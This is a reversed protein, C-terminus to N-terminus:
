GHKRIGAMIRMGQNSAPEVNILRCNNLWRVEYERAEDYTAFGQLEDAFYRNSPNGNVFYELNWLQSDSDFVIDTQRYTEKKGLFGLDFADMHLAQVRGTPKFDIVLEQM